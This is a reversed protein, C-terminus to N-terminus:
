YRRPVNYPSHGAGGQAPKTTAAAQPYVYPSSTPHSVRADAHAGPLPQGLPVPAPSPWAGPVTSSYSTQPSQHHNYGTSHNGYGGNGGPYGAPAQPPTSPYTTVPDPHSAAYTPPTYAAAGAFPSPASTQPPTRPPYPTSSSSATYGSSSMPQMYMAASMYPSPAPGAYPSSSSMHQPPPRPAPATRTHHPLHHSPGIGPGLEGGGHRSSGAGMAPRLGAEGLGAYGHVSSPLSLDGMVPFLEDDPHMGYARRIYRPPDTGPPRPETYRREVPSQPVSNTGGGDRLMGPPPRPVNFKRVREKFADLERQERQADSLERLVEIPIHLQRSVFELLRWEAERRMRRRNGRRANREHTRMHETDSIALQEHPHRKGMDMGTRRLTDEFRRTVGVDGDVRLANVLSVLACLANVSPVTLARRKEEGHFNCAGELYARMDHLAEQAHLRRVHHPHLDSMSPRPQPAADLTPHERLRPTARRVLAPQTM